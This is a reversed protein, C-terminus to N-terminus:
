EEEPAPQAPGSTEIAGAMAPEPAATEEPAAAGNGSFQLAFEGNEDLGINLHEPLPGVAMQQLIETSIKPLLSGNLIHDINRAGTEVETCRQAIQEIVAEDYSFGMKHSAALRKGVGNLKLRVIRTMAEMDITYYPVIRMRALLAPKFHRSLAPRIATLVDEPAPPLPAACMSTITDTELNSTMMVITNRFDIVRGEGDALMGKDFVQYFINMVEPDAKEVEDLLVVSYPRQRVAETLVGGEGYGVYGPPSGVLRSVTHKEQFESMNITVMFREGGFLLDALTLATETKGTGSPGVLLFVGMPTNPNSIGAKAARISEVIADIAHDQGKIREKIRADLSLVTAAEDSVMKGVPIGTWDSVVKGIIDPDVEVHVLPDRGQVQKLEDLRQQLEAALEAETEPLPEEALEGEAADAQAEAEAAPQGNGSPAAAEAEQAADANGTRLAELRDRLAQIRRAVTMERQWREELAAGEDRTRAIEEKLEAIRTEDTPRGAQKDREIADLERELTEVRRDCDDLRDPRCGLQVRVRAAATDILDVSKDPLQRGSIYRSALQAAAVVASDLIRVGHSEEYKERLGRMMTIADEVSPEDAKVVQFRRALAADREFYKKYEGWTTAAVTRLEGRALAPKLLNAADSGGAQGGAGILTHAEDIFLIIPTPSAKVESIVQKLRNEFEGKMGAGAQLLGMDLSILRVNKLVSPVDGKVIRLALGEVLATKGVGAEGTIIPNNKRRRALIDIMQRIERDRAFVPDIRGARAEATFDITFRGLATDGEPVHAGEAGAAPAAAGGAASRLREEEAAEPSEWTIDHFERRLEELRVRDLADTFNFLTTRGPNAVLAMLLGGSRIAPSGLEVSSVLWAEQFWEILMPSFVPKGANGSRLTEICRQLAKIFESPEIEFHRLIWQIDGTPEEALRLLMHEVTVEYHTRSVCLGAAGELARTCYPSLKKLIAKLDIRLM